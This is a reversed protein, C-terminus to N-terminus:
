SAGPARLRYLLVGGVSLPRTGLTAFLTRWPGPQREDVVIATVGKAAVFTRLAAAYGPTLRGTVLINWAPYRTYSPPFPNGLYGDALTFAFGSDAQWRENPGFAPITLVRDAPRLYARYRGSAFFAPDSIKTHWAANGIDPVIAALVLAALAWRAVGPARSGACWIALMVAAALAVYLAFRLPIAYRLLPVHVLLQWPLWVGTDSGRVHLTAGLSLLAAAAFVLAIVWTTRKRAGEWLFAVLAVILPLGLYTETSAGAFPPGSHRTLAVLPPPLAFGALDASFFTAGPPYAHGFLLYYLFPSVLVATAVGALLLLRLVDLLVPRRDPLLAIAAALAIAGFLASAALVETSILYQATLALTMWVTFRRRTLSGDARRLVLLVFLPVIPVLALYPGGTLHILMYPSFGYVYGGLLSPWTAGTIHRCLLFATWASLAPAALQIVNWTVAPGFAITIPSLLVSPLPLTPTWQLNFGDPAFMAHTVFPNTAHQLAHAWWAFSWMFQSSDIQDAAVIRSALHGIVPLGFLLLSLLAYLALAPLAAPQRLRALRPTRTAIAPAAGPPAAARAGAGPPIATAGPGSASM